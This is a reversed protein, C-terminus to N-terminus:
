ILLPDLGDNEIQARSRDGRPADRLKQRLPVGNNSRFGDRFPMAALRAPGSVSPRARRRGQRSAMRRIPTVARHGGRDRVLGLPFRESHGGQRARFGCIAM